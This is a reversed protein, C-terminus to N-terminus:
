PNTVIEFTNDIRPETHSLVFGDNLCTLTVIAVDDERAPNLTAFYLKIIGEAEQVVQFGTFNVYSDLARDIVDKKHRLENLRQLRKSSESEDLLGLVKLNKQNLYHSTELAHRSQQHMHKSSNIQSALFESKMRQTVNEKKIKEELEFLKLQEQEEVKKSETMLIQLADDFDRTSNKICEEMARGLQLEGEGISNMLASNNKEVAKILKDLQSERGIHYLASNSVNAAM